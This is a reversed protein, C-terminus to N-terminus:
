GAAQLPRTPGEEPAGNEAPNMRWLTWNLFGAFGVWALYPVLLWAALASVPAFALIMALISLWFAITEYFALDM